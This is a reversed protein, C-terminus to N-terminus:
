LKKHIRQTQNYTQFRSSFVDDLNDGQLISQSACRQHAFGSSTLVGMMLRFMGKELSFRIEIM